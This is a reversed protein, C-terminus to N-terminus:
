SYFSEKRNEKMFTYTLVKNGGPYTIEAVSEFLDNYPFYKNDLFLLHEKDAEYIPDDHKGAIAVLGLMSKEDDYIVNEILHEFLPFYGSALVLENGLLVPIQETPIVKDDYGANGLIYFHNRTDYIMNSISLDISTTLEITAHTRYLLSPYKKLLFKSAFYTKKMKEDYFQHFSLKSKQLTLARKYENILYSNIKLNM